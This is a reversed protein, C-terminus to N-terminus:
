RGQLTKIASNNANSLANIVQNSESAKYVIIYLVVLGLAGSIYTNLTSM